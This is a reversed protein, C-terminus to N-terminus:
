LAKNQMFAADLFRMVIDASDNQMQPFIGERDPDLDTTGDAGFTFSGLLDQVAHGYVCHCNMVVVRGRPSRNNGFVPLYSFAIRVGQFTAEITGNDLVDSVSVTKLQGPGQFYVHARTLAAFGRVLKPSQEQVSRFKTALDENIM